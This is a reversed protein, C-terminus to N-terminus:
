LEGKLEQPPSRRLRMRREGGRMRDARIPRDIM